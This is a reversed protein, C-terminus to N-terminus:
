VAALDPKSLPKRVAKPADSLTNGFYQRNSKRGNVLANMAIPRVRPMAVGGQASSSRDGPCKWVAVASLEAGLHSGSLFVTNTNDAHNARFNLVGRVLTQHRDYADTDDNPPVRDDNENVYMTWALGLQRLNNLYQIGQVKLKAKGLAPLLMETLIAIIAIVVMLEILTFGRNTEM